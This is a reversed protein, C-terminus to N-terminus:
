AAEDTSNPHRAPDTTHSKEPPHEVIQALEAITASPRPSVETISRIQVGHSIAEIVIKDKSVRLDLFGYQDDAGTVNPVGESTIGGGGGSVIWATPDLFNGPDLYHVEQQHIFGTIILDIGYKAALGTWSYKGGM